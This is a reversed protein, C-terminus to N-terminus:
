GRRGFSENKVGSKRGLLCLKTGVFDLVAVMLGRCWAGRRKEWSRGGRRRWATLQYLSPMPSNINQTEQKKHPARLVAHSVLLEGWVCACGGVWVSVCVSECMCLMVCACESMEKRENWDENEIQVHKIPSWDCIFSLIYLLLNLFM